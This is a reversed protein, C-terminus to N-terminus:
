LHMHILLRQTDPASTRRLLGTLPLISCATPGSLECSLDFLQVVNIHNVLTLLLDGDNILDFFRFPLTLDLFLFNDRNLIVGSLFWAM